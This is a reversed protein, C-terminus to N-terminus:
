GNNLVNARGGISNFDEFFSPYTKKISEADTIVSKGEAYLAAVSFAMVIRHDNFGQLEAGHLPHPEITIFGEGSEVVAGMRSLNECIAGVRDSEKARLRGIGRLTSKGNAFAATVALSPVLDPIDGCNLDIGKLSGRGCQVASESLKVDAGFSRLINCIERDGQPSNINLGQLTVSGGIAGASMFFAAHSWDGGPTYDTPKYQQNGKIYYGNKTESVFVGFQRMVDITLDVYPKSQLPSTFRIESDGKLIPLALLLGTTYQSSLSGSVNYIGSQLQGSIELPLTGASKCSVGHKPLLTVYESIDRKLLSGGGVFKMKLGLAAAVPILFRMASASENCNIVSGGTKLVETANLTAEIDKSNYLPSVSGGGALFACILARHVESKSPPLRLTGNLSSNEITVDM